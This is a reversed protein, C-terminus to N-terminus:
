EEDPPYHARKSFGGDRMVTAYDEGTSLILDAEVRNYVGWGYVKVWFPASLLEIAKLTTAHGHVAEAKSKPRWTEPTDLDSVRIRTEKYLDPFIEMRVDMTDGDVVRMLEAPYVHTVPTESHAESALIFTWSVLLFLFIKKM